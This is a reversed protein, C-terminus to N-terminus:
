SAKDLDEGRLLRRVPVVHRRVPIEAGGVRDPLVETTKVLGVAALHEDQRAVLDVLHVESLKERRVPGAASPLGGVHCETRGEDVLLAGAIESHQADIVGSVDDIEDLLRSMVLRSEVPELRRGPEEVRETDVGMGSRPVEGVHTDVHEVVVEEHLGQLVREHVEAPLHQRRQEALAAEAGMEVMAVPLVDARGARKM